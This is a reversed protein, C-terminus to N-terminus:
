HINGIESARGDKEKIKDETLPSNQQCKLFTLYNLHAYWSYTDRENM